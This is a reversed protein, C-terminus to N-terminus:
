PHVVHTSLICVIGTKIVLVDHINAMLIHKREKYPIKLDIRSWTLEVQMMPHSSKFMFDWKGNFWSDNIRYLLYKDEMNTAKKLFGVGGVSHKDWNRKCAINADKYQLNTFSLQLARRKAEQIDGAVVAEGGWSTSHFM